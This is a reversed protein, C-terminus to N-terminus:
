NMWGNEKLLKSAEEVKDEPVFVDYPVNPGKSRGQISLSNNGPAVSAKIGGNELYGRIISADMESPTTFIKIM